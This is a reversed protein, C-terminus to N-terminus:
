RLTKKLHSSVTGKPANAATMSAKRWDPILLMLMTVSGRVSRARVCYFHGGRNGVRVIEVKSAVQNIGNHKMDHKRRGQNASGKEFAPAGRPSSDPAVQASRFHAQDTGANWHWLFAHNGLALRDIRGLTKVLFLRGFRRFRLGVCRFDRLEGFFFRQRRRTWGSREFVLGRDVVIVNVVALAAIRIKRCPIRLVGPCGGTDSGYTLTAAVKAGTIGPIHIRDTVPNALDPILGGNIWSHPRGAAGM